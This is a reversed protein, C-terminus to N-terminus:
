PRSRRREREMERFYLGTGDIADAKTLDTQGSFWRADVGLVVAVNFIHAPPLIGRDFWMKVAAKGLGLPKAVEQYLQKELWDDDWGMDASLERLRMFAAASLEDQTLLKVM